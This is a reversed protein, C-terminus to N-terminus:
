VVFKINAHCSIEHVLKQYGQLQTTTIMEFYDFPMLYM